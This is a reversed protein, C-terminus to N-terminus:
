LLMQHPYSLLCHCSLSPKGKVEIKEKCSNCNQNWIHIQWKVHTSEFKYKNTCKCKNICKSWFKTKCNESSAYSNM